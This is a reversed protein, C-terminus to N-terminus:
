CQPISVQLLCNRLKSEQGAKPMDTIQSARFKVDPLSEAVHHIALTLARWGPRVRWSSRSEHGTLYVAVVQPQLLM